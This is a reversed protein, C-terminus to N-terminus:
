PLSPNKKLVFEVLATHYNGTGSDGSLRFVYTQRRGTSGVTSITLLSNRGKPSYFDGPVLNIMTAASQRPCAVTASNFCGNPTVKIWGPNNLILTEISEDRKDFSINTGLNPVLALNFVRDANDYRVIRSMVGNDPIPIAPRPAQAIALAPWLLTALLYDSM